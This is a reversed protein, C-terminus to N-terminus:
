LYDGEAVDDVDMWDSAELDVDSDSTELDAEDESLKRSPTWDSDSDIEPMAEDDLTPHVSHPILRTATQAVNASPFTHWIEGDPRDSLLDPHCISPWDIGRYQGYDTFLCRVARLSPVVGNSRINELWGGTILAVPDLWWHYGAESTFREHSGFDWIDLYKLTPSNLTTQPFQRICNHPNPIILHELMPCHLELTPCPDPNCSLPDSISKGFLHLYVLRRGVRELLREPWGQLSVLTLRTLNPMNWRRCIYEDFNADQGFPVYLEVLSPLQVTSLNRPARCPVIDNTTYDLILSRLSTTTLLLDQLNSFRSVTLVFRLDLRHLRSALLEDVFPLTDHSISAHFFWTPNFYRFGSSDQRENSLLPFNPHPHYSLSRLAHCERLIFGLEEKATRALQSGIPCSEMLVSKILPRIDAGRPSRLTRALIFIQDMRRLVIDEYLASMGEWYLAKCIMPLAAKTALVRLWPNSPGNLLSPDYQYTAPITDKFIFRVVETPLTSLNPKPVQGSPAPLHRGDVMFFRVAARLAINERRLKDIELVSKSLAQRTQKISHGIHAIAHHADDFQASVDM